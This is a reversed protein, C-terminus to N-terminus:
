FMIGEYPACNSSLTQLSVDIEKNNNMTSFDMFVFPNFKSSIDIVDFGGRKTSHCHDTLIPARDYFTDFTGFPYDNYCFYDAEYTINRDIIKIFVQDIPISHDKINDIQMGYSYKNENEGCNFTVPDSTNCQLLKNKLDGESIHINCRYKESGYYLTFVSYTASRMENIWHSTRVGFM